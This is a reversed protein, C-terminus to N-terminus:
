IQKTQIMVSWIAAGLRGSVRYVYGVPKIEKIELGTHRLLPFHRVSGLTVTVLLLQSNAHSLHSRHSSVSNETTNIKVSNLILLRM